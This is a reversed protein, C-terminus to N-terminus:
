GHRRLPGSGSAPFRRPCFWRGARITGSRRGARCCGGEEGALADPLDANALGEAGALPLDRAQQEAYEAFYQQNAADHAYGHRQVKGPTPQLVEFVACRQGYEHKGAGHAGNGQDRQNCYAVFRQPRRHHIRHLRQPALSPFPTPAPLQAQGFRHHQVDALATRHFEPVPHFISDIDTGSIKM